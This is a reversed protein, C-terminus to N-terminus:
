KILANRARINARIFDLQEPSLGLPQTFNGQYNSYSELGPEIVMTFRGEEDLRLINADFLAHLDRRLTIGNNVQDSGNQSVPLVHAADLVLVNTEGTIACCPNRGLVDQRFRGNRVKRLASAVARTVNVGDVSCIPRAVVSKGGRRIWACTWEKGDEGGLPTYCAAGKEGDAAGGDRWKGGDSYTLTFGGEADKHLIPTYRVLKGDSRLETTSIEVGDADPPMGFIAGLDIMEYGSDWRVEMIMELLDNEKDTDDVTIM